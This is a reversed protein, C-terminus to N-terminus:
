LYVHGIVECGKFLRDVSNTARALEGAPQSQRRSCHELPGFNRRISHQYDFSLASHGAVLKTGIDESRNRLGSFSAGGQSIGIPQRAEEWAATAQGDSRRGPSLLREAPAQRLRTGASVEGAYHRPLAGHRSGGSRRVERSRRNKEERKHM